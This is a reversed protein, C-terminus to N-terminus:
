AFKERNGAQRCQGRSAGETKDGRFRYKKDIETLKGLNNLLEGRYTQMTKDLGRLERLTFESEDNADVGNLLTAVSTDVEEVIEPLKNTEIAQARENLQSIRFDFNQLATVTEQSLRTTPNLGIKRLM